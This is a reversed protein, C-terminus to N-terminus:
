MQSSQERMDKTLSGRGCATGRATLYFLVGVAQLFVGLPSLGVMNAGVAPHEDTRLFSGAGRGCEVARLCLLYTCACEQEARGGRWTKRPHNETAPHEDTREGAQARTALAGLGVAVESRGGM